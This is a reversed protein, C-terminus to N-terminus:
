GRIQYITVYIIAVIVDAAIVILVSLLRAEHKTQVSVGSGRIRSM